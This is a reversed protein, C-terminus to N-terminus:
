PMLQKALLYHDLRLLDPDRGYADYFVYVAEPGLSRLVSAHAHALDFHRDALRVGGLDVWGVFAGQHAVMNALDADGHCIVLDEDAPRGARFLDLLEPPSYRQYPEDVEDIGGGVSLAAVREVADWGRELQQPALDVSLDHLQRLATGAVEALSGVDGHLDPRDAPVGDLRETVLWATEAVVVHLEAAAVSVHEGLWGRNTADRDLEVALEASVRKVAHRESLWVESTPQSADVPVWGSPDGAVAIVDDPAVLDPM